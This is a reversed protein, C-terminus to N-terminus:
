EVVYPGFIIATLLSFASVVSFFDSLNWHVKSRVKDIELELRKSISSSTIGGNSNSSEQQHIVRTATSYLRKNRISLLLPSPMTNYDYRVCYGGYVTRTNVSVNFKWIGRSSDNSKPLLWRKRNLSSSTWLVSSLFPGIPSPLPTKRLPHFM